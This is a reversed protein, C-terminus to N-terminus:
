VSQLYGLLAQSDIADVHVAFGDSHQRSVSGFSIEYGAPPKRRKAMAKYVRTLEDTAGAFRVVHVNPTNKIFQELVGLVTSFVAMPSTENFSVDERARHDVWGSIKLSAFSIDYINLNPDPVKTIIVRYKSSGSEFFYEYKNSKTITHKIKFVEMLKM